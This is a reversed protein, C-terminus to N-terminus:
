ASTIEVVKLINIARFYLCSFFIENSTHLIIQPKFESCHFVNQKSYFNVNEHTVNLM